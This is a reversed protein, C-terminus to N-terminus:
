TGGGPKYVVPGVIKIANPGLYVANPGSIQIAGPGSIVVAANVTSQAARREGLHEQAFQEAQAKWQRLLATPFSVVDNDVLKACNQCLWIGNEGSARADATLTPDFRPGGPAAATIHAAVGINVARSSDDHPGSTQIQCDPNACLGAARQALIRQVTMPFDDRM